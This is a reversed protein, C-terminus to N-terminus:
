GKCDKNIKGPNLNEFDSKKEILTVRPSKETEKRSATRRGTGRTRKKSRELLRKRADAESEQSPVVNEQTNRVETDNVNPSQALLM